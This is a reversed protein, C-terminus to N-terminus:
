EREREKLSCSVSFLCSLASPPLLSVVSTLVSSFSEGAASVLPFENGSLPDREREKQGLSLRTRLWLPLRSCGAALCPAREQKTRWVQRRDSCVDRRSLEQQQVKRGGANANSHEFALTSSCRLSNSGQERKREGAEWVNGQRHIVPNHVDTQKTQLLLRAMSMKQERVALSTHVHTSEKQRHLCPIARREGRVGRVAERCEDAGSM